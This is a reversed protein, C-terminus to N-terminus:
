SRANYQFARASPEFSVTHSLIFLKKLQEDNLNFDRKLVQANNPFKAETKIKTQRM